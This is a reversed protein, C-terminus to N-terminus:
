YILVLTGPTVMGYLEAASNYPMNVCGHSGAGQYINGGFYGRWTADHLGYSNGIFAMWYSVFSEYEDGNDERGKLTVNREMFNIRFTGRPTSHGVVTNGTVVPCDLVVKGDVFYSLHQEAISVFVYTGMAGYEPEQVIVDAKAKTKNGSPDTAVATVTYNGSKDYDIKPKKLKLKVKGSNDEAKFMTDMLSEDIPIGKFTYIQKAETFVPPEHDTITISYSRYQHGKYNLTLTHDGASKFNKGAAPKGDYLIETNDRVFQAEEPNLDTFDVYEAIDDPIPQGLELDFSSYSYKPNLSLVPDCATFLMCAALALLIMILRTLQRRNANKM